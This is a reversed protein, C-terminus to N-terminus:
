PSCHEHHDLHAQDYKLYESFGLAIGSYLGLEMLTVLAAKQAEEMTEFYRFPRVKWVCAGTLGDEGARPEAIWYTWGQADVGHVCEVLGVTQGDARNIAISKIVWQLGESTSV